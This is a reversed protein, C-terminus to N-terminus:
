LLLVIQLSFKSLTQFELCVVEKKRNNMVNIGWSYYSSFCYCKPTINGYLASNMLITVFFVPSIIFILLSKCNLQTDVCKTDLFLVPLIQYLRHSGKKVYCSKIFSSMWYLLLLCNSLGHFYVVEQFFSIRLFFDQRHLM